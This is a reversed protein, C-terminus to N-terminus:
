KDLERSRDLIRTPRDGRRLTEVLNLVYALKQGYDRALWASRRLLLRTNVLLLLVVLNVHRREDFGRSVLRGVEQLLEKVILKQTRMVFSTRVDRWVRIKEDRSIVSRVEVHTERLHRKTLKPFIEDSERGRIVEEIRLVLARHHFVERVEHRHLPR